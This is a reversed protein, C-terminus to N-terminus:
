VKGQFQQVEDVSPITLNSGSQIKMQNYMNITEQYATLFMQMELEAIYVIDTKNFKFINGTTYFNIIEMKPVPRIEPQSGEQTQVPMMSIVTKIIDSFYINDDDIMKVKGIFSNEQTCFEYIKGTEVNSFIDM